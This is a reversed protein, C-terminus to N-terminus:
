KQDPHAIKRTQATVNADRNNRNKDGTSLVRRLNHKHGKLVIHVASQILVVKRRSNVDYGLGSIAIRTAPSTCPRM